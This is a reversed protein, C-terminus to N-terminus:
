AKLILNGRGKKVRKVLGKAELEDIMLSIKAESYPFQKRIDKQTTRGGETEIFEMIKRLEESISVERIERIIEKVKETVKEPRRSVKYVLYALVAFVVLWILWLSSPKAKLIEEIPAETDAFFEENTEINPLLIFDIVYDGEVRSIINEVFESDTKNNWAHLEYEGPMVNFSYTGNKAVMQQRPTSNIEIVSNPLKNLGFDYISGHITVGLVSPLMLLLIAWFWRMSLM